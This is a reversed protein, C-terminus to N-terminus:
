RRVMLVISITMPRRLIRLARIAMVAAIRRMAEMAVNRRLIPRRKMARRTTVTVL